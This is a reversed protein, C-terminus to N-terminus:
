LDEIYYENYVLKKLTSCTIGLGRSVTYNLRFYNLCLLVYNQDTVIGSQLNLWYPPNCCHLFSVNPLITRLKLAVVEHFILPDFGFKFKMQIKTHDLLTGFIFHFVSFVFSLLTTFHYNMINLGLAM